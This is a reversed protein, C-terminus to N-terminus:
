KNQELKAYYAAIKAREEDDRSASTSKFNNQTSNYEDKWCEQNLWTSPHKWFQSDKGRTNVYKTLGALINDFSDVKLAKEFSKVALGKSKKHDYHTWFKEFEENKNKSDSKNDKKSDSDSKSDSDALNAVSQKSKSANALKQKGGKAGAERRRECTIQYKKDDRTFQNLFPTLALDLAFDLTTIEGTKQYSYISKFIKGAQEDSLKDLIVLSDLHLIFSKNIPQTTM